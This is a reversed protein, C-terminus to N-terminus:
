EVSNTILQIKVLWLVFINNILSESLVNISGREFKALFKFKLVFGRSHVSKAAFFHEHFHLSFSNYYSNPTAKQSKVFKNCHIARFLRPLLNFAFMDCIQHIPALTGSALLELSKIVRLVGLFLLFLSVFHGRGILFLLFVASKVIVSVSHFSSWFRWDNGSSIEVLSVLWSANRRRDQRRTMELGFAWFMRRFLHGVLGVHSRYWLSVSLPLLLWTLNVRVIEHLRLLIAFLSLSIVGVFLLRAGVFSSGGGKTFDSM